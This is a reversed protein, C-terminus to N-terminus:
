SFTIDGIKKKNRYFHFVNPQGQVSELRYSFFRALIPFKTLIKIQWPPICSRIFDDLAQMRANIIEETVQDPTMQM